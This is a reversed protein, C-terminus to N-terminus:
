YIKFKDAIVRVRKYPCNQVHQNYQASAVLRSSTPSRIHKSFSYAYHSVQWRNELLELEGLSERVSAPVENKRKLWKPYVVGRVLLFRRCLERLSRCTQSLSFLSLSDLRDCIDYLVDAPLDLLLPATAPAAPLRFALSGTQACRVLSAQPHALDAYRHADNRGFFFHLKQEFYPCGYQAMPCQLHIHDASPLLTNHLLSYHDSYEDRRVLQGCFSTFTTETPFTKM